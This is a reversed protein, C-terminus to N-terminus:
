VKGILLFFNWLAISFLDATYDEHFIYPTGEIFTYMYFLKDETFAGPIGQGHWFHWEQKWLKKNSASLIRYRKMIIGGKFSPIREFKWIKLNVFAKEFKNQFTFDREVHGKEWILRYGGMGFSDSSPYDWEGFLCRVSWRHMFWEWGDWKGSPESGEFSCRIM